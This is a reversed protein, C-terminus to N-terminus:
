KRKRYFTIPMYTIGEDKIPIGPSYAVAGEPIQNARITIIDFPPVSIALIPRETAVLNRTKETDGIVGELDVPFIMEVGYATREFEVMFCFIDYQKYPNNYNLLRYFLKPIFIIDETNVCLVFM